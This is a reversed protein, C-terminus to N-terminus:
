KKVNRKSPSGHLDEEQEDEEEEDDDSAASIKQADPRPTRTPRLFIDGPQRPREIDAWFFTGLFKDDDTAKSLPSMVGSTATTFVVYDVTRETLFVKVYSSQTKNVGLYTGDEERPYFITEANGKVDVLYIDGDRVYAFMEKGAMQDYENEGERKVAIANNFGHLYDPENNKFYVLVTDASVQNNGNWCVPNGTLRALSDQGSYFMSDCVLQIDDRYMRVNYFARIRMFSTDVWQTDPAPLVWVSDVLVSDKPILFSVQASIQQTFLTDAHLYTYMTSDSWDVLMASDTAYGSDTNEWVEGRNGYLTISHTSDVSQMNGNVQGHGAIKDYYITDGTLTMGDAHIIQSRSFLMSIETETNYWGDSSLITTEEEYVITTPSVLDARHSATNYCLTDSTLVFKPHVLRVEGSFVAQDNYPTYQGRISTLTNISDEIMGGEFYYAIDKVRDYNLYDTTLISGDHLLRVNNRFKALKTDGYYYLLDGFGELSDGQVLHVHGFAHLSNDKEFFYASDCYMWASDHRFCVNGKLIQVDPLRKEDFSLAESRELYVMSKKQAIATVGCFFFLILIYYIRKM